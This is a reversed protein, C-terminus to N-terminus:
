RTCRLRNSRRTLGGHLVLNEKELDSLRQQISSQDAVATELQERLANVQGLAVVANGFSM